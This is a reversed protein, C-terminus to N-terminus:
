VIAKGENILNERCNKRAVAGRGVLCCKSVDRVSREQEQDVNALSLRSNGPNGILSHTHTYITTHDKLLVKKM